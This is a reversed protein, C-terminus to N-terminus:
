KLREANEKINASYVAKIDDFGNEDKFKQIDEFYKPVNNVDADRIASIISTVTNLNVKEKTRSQEDTLNRQYDDLLYDPAVAYQGFYEFIDQMPGGELVGMEIEFADQGFWYLNSVGYEKQARESDTAKVELYEETFVPKGDVMNYTKGEVGFTNVMRGEYDLMYSIFNTATQPDKCAQTVYTYTWGTLSGAGLEPQEGDTNRLFDVPIYSQDPNRQENALWHVDTASMGGTLYAFVSGTSLKEQCNLEGTFLGEPLLGKNYMKNLITIWRQFEEDNYMDVFEEGDRSKINLLYVASTDIDSLYTGDGVGIGLPIMPNGYDDMPFKEKAMELANLFGEETTMDPSGIAEYIDERVIFGTNIKTYGNEADSPTVVYNPYYYLNNNEDGHWKTIYPDILDMLKPNYQEALVNLPITIRDAEDNFADTWADVTIMDPIDGSAIMTNLNDTTGILFEIEIGTETTIHQTVLDRGWEGNYWDMNIYWVLKQKESAIDNKWMNVNPDIEQRPEPLNFDAATAGGANNNGGNDDSGCGTISGLMTAVLAFSVLKKM